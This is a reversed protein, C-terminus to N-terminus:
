KEELSNRWWDCTSQLQQYFDENPSWGVERRLKNISGVIYSPEATPAKNDDFQVLSSKGLIKAITQVLYKVTIAKGSAINVSGQVNCDLLAAFASGADDVYLFDRYLMGDDFLVEENNILKIIVRPILREKKEGPGFINFIHGWAWSVDNQIVSAQLIEHLSHKNIGYLSDPSFESTNEDLLQNQGWKYEASTGAVVIRKGGHRIFSEALYLSAATWRLNKNSNWYNGHTTDWALHLLGDPKEDKIIKEIETPSHIDGKVWSVYYKVSHKDVPSRTLAVIDHGREILPKIVTNGLFGNAGTVLVKM